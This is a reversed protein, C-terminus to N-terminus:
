FDRRIFSDGQLTMKRSLAPPAHEPRIYPVQYKLRDPGTQSIRNPTELLEPRLVTKQVTLCPHSGTTVFVRMPVSQQHAIRLSLWLM